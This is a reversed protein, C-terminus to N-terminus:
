STERHAIFTAQFGRRATSGVFPMAVTPGDVRCLYVEDADVAINWAFWFPLASDVAHPLWGTDIDPTITTFFSTKSMGPDSGGYSMQFRKTKSRVNVGIPSGNNNIFPEVSSSRNYPDLDALAGADYDIRRGLTIVGVQPIAAFDGPHGVLQIVIRWYRLDVETFTKLFPLDDTPTHASMRVTTPGAFSDADVRVLADATKLNHGGIALTDAALTNGVGADLDILWNSTVVDSKHRYTTGIRWDNVNAVPFGAATRNSTLTASTNELINEHLLLPNAM